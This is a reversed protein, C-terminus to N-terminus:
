DYIFPQYTELDGRLHRALLRAQIHIVLGFPINQQLMPHPVEEKKRNQYAILVQKRGTTSLYIAGGPREEFDDPKIQRRNILAFVLRDGLSSRLEEALDLALAPRGPRVEHLYGVQPDLGVGECAAKCDSSILTYVFSLLANYANQPPRRSRAEFVFGTGAVIADFAEFYIRAARGEYGRLADVGEARGVEARLADLQRRREGIIEKAEGQADRARRLLTNRSSWLKGEVISRAIDLTRAEDRYADYQALRLLVNGTTPGSLAASFQDRRDLWTVSVGRETCAALLGASVLVHGRLVMAGIHLLPVKLKVEQDIEVKINENDLHVYGSGEMVYLTNLLLKNM